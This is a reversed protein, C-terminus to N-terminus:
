KNFYDLTISKYKDTNISLFPRYNIIIGYQEQWLLDNKLEKQWHQFYGVLMDLIIMTEICIDKRLFLRFLTPHGFKPVEFNSDFDEELKSLDDKFRYTLSEQRKKWSMYVDDPQSANINGVYFDKGGEVFQALLYNEIDKKKALKMFFYKDRRTEYSTENVKVKSNYKHYDYSTTFHNKLAIYKQYVEFPSMINISGRLSYTQINQNM